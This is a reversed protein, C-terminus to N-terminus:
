QILYLEEPLIGFTDWWFSDPRDQFKKWVRRGKRISRERLEREQEIWDSLGVFNRSESYRLIRRILRRCVYSRGRNGPEVGNLKLLRVTRLHDSVVPHLHQDFLSTKDIRDRMQVVQYIRELGFGVDTSHGLPNVLNGIELGDVFLECCHGGIRGDTWVCEEDHVVSYGRREWLLQHDKRSPHVRIQDIRIKLDGVISHWLEVSEEYDNRGFSFNGIMEFSTLHSGDGVLEIDDTRICSQISGVREGDPEVFRPKFRQMGSCVFLTSDDGIEPIM